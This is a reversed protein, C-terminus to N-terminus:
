TCKRALREDAYLVHVDAGHRSTDRDLRKGRSRLQHIGLREMCHMCESPTALEHSPTKDTHSPLIVTHVAQTKALAKIRWQEGLNARASSRRGWCPM